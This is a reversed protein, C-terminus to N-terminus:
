NHYEDLYNNVVNLYESALEFLNGEGVFLIRRKQETPLELFKTLQYDLHKQLNVPYKRKYIFLWKLFYVRAKYIHDLIDDNRQKILIEIRKNYKQIRPILMDLRKKRLDDNYFPFFKSDIIKKNPIEGIIPIGYQYFSGLFVDVADHAVTREMNDSRPLEPAM